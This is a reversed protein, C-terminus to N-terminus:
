DSFKYFSENLYKVVDNIGNEDLGTKQMSNCGEVQGILAGLSTVRRDTRTYLM